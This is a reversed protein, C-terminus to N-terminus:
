KRGFLHAMEEHVQADESVTDRVIEELVEGFRSRAHTLYNTVDTEKIGLDKAVKAYSVKETRNLYYIRFVRYYNPRGEEAYKYELTDLATQFAAKEWERDFLEEPTQSDEPDISGTGDPNIFDLSFKKKDGGRKKTSERDYENRLFNELCTRLFTRFLGKEPSVNDLFPRNLLDVFFAQTLDKSDENSKGWKRRIYGYVPKWYIQILPELNRRTSGEDGEKSQLILSWCTSRFAEDQGGIQTRPDMGM